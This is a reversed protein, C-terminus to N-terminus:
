LDFRERLFKAVGDDHNHGIVKTAKDKVFDKANDPAYCEDAIEFMSLDNDSDGFCLVNTAGLTDRLKQVAAGKNAQCHHIDMWSYEHGEHAPGSYAILNPHENLQQWMTKIHSNLGIMSINTVPRDHALSDLALLSAGSRAFYKSILEEEIPHQPPSHYIVHHHAEVTNVFPTIQHELAMALIVDIEHKTLLNEFTMDQSNPDWLTVGNNYIHPLALFQGDLIPRASLMTRGTAVTYAIGSENMRQLTDKTFQSLASDQNLLTGDLDFFVLDMNISCARTTQTNM